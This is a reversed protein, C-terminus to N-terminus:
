LQYPISDFCNSLDHNGSHNDHTSHLRDFLFWIRFLPIESESTAPQIAGHIFSASSEGYSLANQAPDVGNEDVSFLSNKAHYNM